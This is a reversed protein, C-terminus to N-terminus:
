KASRWTKGRALTETAIQGRENKKKQIFGDMDCHPWGRRGISLRVAAPFEGRNVMRRLTSQSVGIMQAVEKSNFFKRGQM